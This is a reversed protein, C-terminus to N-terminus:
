YLYGSASPLMGVFPFSGWLLFNISSLMPLAYPLPHFPTNNIPSSFILTGFTSLFWLMSLLLASIEMIGPFSLIRFIEFNYRKNFENFELLLLSYVLSIISLVSLCSLEQGKIYMLSENIIVLFSILALSSSYGTSYIYQRLNSKRLSSEHINYLDFTM